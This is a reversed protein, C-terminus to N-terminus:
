ELRGFFPQWDGVSEGVGLIVDVRDLELEGAARASEIWCLRHLGEFEVYPGAVNIAVLMPRGIMKSSNFDPRIARYRQSFQPPRTAKGADLAQTLDAVRRSPAISTFEDTDIVRVEGVQDVRLRGSYWHTCLWALRGIYDGRNAMAATSVDERDRETWAAVAERNLRTLRDPTLLADYHASIGSRPPLEAAGIEFVAQSFDSPGVIEVPM